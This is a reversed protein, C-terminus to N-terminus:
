APIISYMTLCNLLYKKYDEMKDHVICDIEENEINYIFPLDAPLVKTVEKDKFYKKVVKGLMVMLEGRFKRLEEGFESVLALKPKIATILRATGLLGLHNPYFVEGKEKIDKYSKTMEESRISGIHAVLLNIDKGDIAKQYSVHIEDKSADVRDKGIKPFLGTDSTFIINKLGNKTDFKLHLGVGYKKTIVEDHYTPIATMTIGDVDYTNGATIPFVDNIYDCDRLNLVGSFKMFSGTNMYLDISKHKLHNKNNYQYILTMISEFDITHDNHAHTLIVNDIDTVRGGAKYFNEIFNYGPDIVTGKGKYYIFYGGGISREEDGAPIIPTYSNWKRLTLLMPFDQIICSESYIFKNNNANFENMLTEFDVIIPKFDERVKEILLELESGEIKEAKVGESEEITKVVRDFDYKLEDCIYRLRKTTYYDGAPAKKYAEKILEFAEDVKGQNSLLVGKERLANYDDPKIKLAENFFSIAEEQNGQIALCVGLNKILFFDDRRTEIAKRFSEEQLKRDKEKYGAIEGEFFLRYAEVDKSKELAEKLLAEGESDKGIGYLDDIQYSLRRLEEIKEELEM